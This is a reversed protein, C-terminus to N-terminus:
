GVFNGNYSVLSVNKVADIEAIEEVFSTDSGILKLELTLEVTGLSVTKSKIKYNLEGLRRFLSEQAEEEYHIVLLFINNSNKFRLLLVIIVGIFFSGTFSVIYLNAGTTIGLAIAWFMFVIDLPDKVATRFRVISLAGVMGLSLVLNSRITMIILSTILAMMVLSVNYNHSYIVGSYTVKYIFFIFLSMIFTIILGFLIDYFEVSTIFETNILSGKIIDTFNLM